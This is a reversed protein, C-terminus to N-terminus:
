PFQVIGKIINILKPLLRPLGRPEAQPKAEREGLLLGGDDGEEMQVRSRQASWPEEQPRAGGKM